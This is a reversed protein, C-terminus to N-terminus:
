AGSSAARDRRVPKVCAFAEEIVRSLRGKGDRALWTDVAATMIATATNALVRPRLDRRADARVRAALVETLDVVVRAVRERKGARLAPTSAMLREVALLRARDVEYHRAAAVYAHRLSVLPDEGIPRDRLAPTVLECFVDVFAIVVDEKAPFYRFFTRRSVDCAAAIDDITTADYGRELFLDFAVEVLHERVRQKKRARLGPEPPPEVVGLSCWERRM